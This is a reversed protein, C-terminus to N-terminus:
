QSVVADTLQHVAGVGGSQHAPDPIGLIPAHHLQQEGIGTRPAELREGRHM